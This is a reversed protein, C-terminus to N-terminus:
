RLTLLLGILGSNRSARMARWGNRCGCRLFRAYRPSASRQTQAAEVLRARSSLVEFLASAEIKLLDTETGLHPWVRRLEGPLPTRRHDHM